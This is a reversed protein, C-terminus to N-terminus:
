LYKLAFPGTSDTRLVFKTQCFSVRDSFNRKGSASLTRPHKKLFVQFQPSVALRVLISLSRVVRPSGPRVSTEPQTSRQVKVGHGGGGLGRLGGGREGQGEGKEKM